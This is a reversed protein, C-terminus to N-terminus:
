STQLEIWTLTTNNETHEIAKLKQFNTNASFPYLARSTTQNKHNTTSTQTRRMQENMIDTKQNRHNTTMCSVTHTRRMHENM